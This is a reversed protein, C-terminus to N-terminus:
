RVNWSIRHWELGNEVLLRILQHNMIIMPRLLDVKDLVKLAEFGPHFGGVPCGLFYRRRLRWRNSGLLLLLHLHRRCPRWTSVLAGQDARSPGRRRAAM